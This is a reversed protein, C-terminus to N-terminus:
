YDLTYYSSYTKYTLSQFLIYKKKKDIVLVNGYFPLANLHQIYKKKSVSHRYSFAM